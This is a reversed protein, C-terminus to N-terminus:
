RSGADPLRCTRKANQLFSSVSAAASARRARSRGRRRGHRRRQGDREQEGGGPRGRRLSHGGLRHPQGLTLGFGGQGLRAPGEGEGRLEIGGHEDGRAALALHDFVLEDLRAVVVATVAGGKVVRHPPAQGAEAAM